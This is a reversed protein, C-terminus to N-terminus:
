APPYLRRRPPPPMGRGEVVCSLLMSSTKKPATPDDDHQEKDRVTGLLNSRKVVFLRTISAITWFDRSASWFPSFTLAGVFPPPESESLVDWRKARVESEDPYVVTNLITRCKEARPISSRFSCLVARFRSIRSVTSATAHCRPVLCPLQPLAASLPFCGSKIRSKIQRDGSLFFFLVFFFLDRALHLHICARGPTTQICTQLRLDAVEITGTEGEWQRTVLKTQRRPRFRAGVSGCFGGAFASSRHVKIFNACHLCSSLLSKLLLAPPARPAQPSIHLNFYKPVLATTCMQSGRRIRRPTSSHYAVGHGRRIKRSSFTLFTPSFFMSSRHINENRWSTHPVYASQLIPKPYWHATADYFGWCLLLLLLLLRRNPYRSARGCLLICLTSWMFFRAQPHCFDQQVSVSSNNFTHSCTLAAAACPRPGVTEGDFLQETTRFRRAFLFVVGGQKPLKKDSPQPPSLPAQNSHWKQARFKPPRRRRAHVVLSRFFRTSRLQTVHYTRTKCAPLCGPRHHSILPFSLLAGRNELLMM